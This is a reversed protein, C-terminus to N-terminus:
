TASKFGFQTANIGSQTWSVGTAPDVPYRKSAPAYGGGVGPLDASVYNTGGSRCISKINLPSNAADNKVRVCQRAGYITYGIPLTFDTMQYTQSLDILLAQNFNADTTVVENVDTYVGNWEQNFGAGTARLTKVHGAITSLDQTCILQSYGEAFGQTITGLRVRALDTMLPISLTVTYVTSDFAYFSVEHNGGADILVSVDVTITAAGGHFVYNTGSVATWTPSGGTGSNRQLQWTSGSIPIVRIWPFGASDIATWLPWGVQLHDTPLAYVYMHSYLTHGATVPDSAGADDTFELDVTDQPDLNDTNTAQIRADSWDTDYGYNPFGGANEAWNGVINTVSDLRGGYFLMKPTLVM